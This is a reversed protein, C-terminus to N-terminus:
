LNGGSVARVPKRRIGFAEATSRTDLRRTRTWTREAGNAECTLITGKSSSYDLVSVTEIVTPGTLSVGCAAGLM